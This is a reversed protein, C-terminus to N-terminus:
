NVNDTTCLRLHLKNKIILQTLLSSKRCNHHNTSKNDLELNEYKKFSAYLTKLSDLPQEWDFDPFAQDVPQPHSDLSELFASDVKL